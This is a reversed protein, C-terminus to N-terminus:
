GVPPARAGAGAAAATRTWDAYASIAEAPDPAALGDEQALDAAALGTCIACDVHHPAPACPTQVHDGAEGHAAESHEAREAAEELGHAALHVTPLAVGGATLVALLLSALVPRLAIM